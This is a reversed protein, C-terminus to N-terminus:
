MPNSQEFWELSLCLGLIVLVDLGIITLALWPTAPIYFMWRLLSFGAGLFGMVLGFYGGRLMSVGAAVALVAIATDFIGWWFFHAHFMSYTAGNVTVFWHSNAFETLAVFAYDVAAVFTMVAAFTVWGPRRGTTVSAIVALEKTTINEKILM